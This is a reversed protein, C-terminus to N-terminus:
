PRDHDRILSPWSRYRRIEGPLPSKRNWPRDILAVPTHMASYLHRAMAASDEVALCFSKESLTALPEAIATDMEKRGYKDVITFTDYPVQHQRLWELSADYAGPLRGTVVAISYGLNKWRALANVAGPVPPLGLLVDPQHITHFLHLYERDTLQFSVKLDFSTIAEYSVTKGFENRVINVFSRTTESLVDDFDVYIPLASGRRDDSM